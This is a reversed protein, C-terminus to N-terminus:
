RVTNIVLTRESVPGDGIRYGGALAELAGQVADPTDTRLELLVDGAAVRDGPKKHCIIGAAHQVPDEKRARGAGLRWAAVGVAYADLEVLSGSEAAPVTHVHKAQPLPAEPDGGQASIMRCWTEYAGGDALVRAPDTSIGALTLMETALAVTLDIVDQPGGGKLVDVSEQVEV